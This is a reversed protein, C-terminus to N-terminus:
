SHKYDIRFCDIKVKKEDNNNWSADAQEKLSLTVNTDQTGDFTFWSTTYTTWSTDTTVVKEESYTAGGSFSINLTVPGGPTNKDMKYRVILRADCANDNISAGYWTGSTTKWERKGNKWKEKAEMGDNKDDCKGVGNNKDTKDQIQDKHDLTWTYDPFIDSETISCSPCADTSVWTDNSPISPSNDPDTIATTILYLTGCTLGDFTYTFASGSDAMTYLTGNSNLEVTASNDEDCDGTYPATVEISSQTTSYTITGPTTDATSVTISYNWIPAAPYKTVNTGDSALIYYYTTVTYSLNASVPYTTGCESIAQTGNIYNVTSFAQDTSYVIAWDVTDLDNDFLDFSINQTGPGCTTVDGPDLNSVEPANNGLGCDQIQINDVSGVGQLGYIDIASASLSFTDDYTPVWSGSYITDSDSDTLIVTDSVDGTSNIVSVTVVADGDLRPTGCNDEVTATITVPTACAGGTACYSSGSTPSTIEVSLYVPNCETEVPNGCNWSLYYPGLYISYKVDDGPTSLNVPIGGRSSNLVVTRNASLYTVNLNEDVDITLGLGASYNNEVFPIWVSTLNAKVASSNVSGSDDISLFIFNCASRRISSDLDKGAYFVKDSWVVMSTSTDALNMMEVLSAALIIAPVALLFAMSTFVFSKKDDIRRGM